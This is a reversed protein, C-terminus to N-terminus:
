SDFNLLMGLILCHSSEHVCQSMDWYGISNSQWLIYIYMCVYMCYSDECSSMCETVGCGCKLYM